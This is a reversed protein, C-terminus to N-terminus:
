EVVEPEWFSPSYAYRSKIGDPKVYIVGNGSGQIEGARRCRCKGGGLREEALKTWVVRMGKRADELKM